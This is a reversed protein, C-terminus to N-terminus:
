RCTLIQIKRLIIQEFAPDRGIPIWQQNQPAAPVVAAVRRDLRPAERFTAPGMRAQSPIFSDELEKYVEVAVRWGGREGPMIRVVARHRVSQLTAILRERAAPTGPRFPEELGSATRPLTEIQGSYRDGPIVDFYDDVANLAQEYVHAYGEPTPPGPELLIPNEIDASSPRVLAPNDLPPVATCGASFLGATALGKWNHRM